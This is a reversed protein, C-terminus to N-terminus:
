VSRSAAFPSIAIAGFRRLFSGYWGRFSRAGMLRTPALWSTSTTWGPTGALDVASSIERAFVFVPPILKAEAPVPEVACRAPSYKLCRAPILM